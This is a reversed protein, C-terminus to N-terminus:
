VVALLERLGRDLAELRQDRRGVAELQGLAVELDTALALQEARALGAVRVQAEHTEPLVLIQELARTLDGCCQGVFPKEGLRDVVEEALGLVQPLRSFRPRNAP